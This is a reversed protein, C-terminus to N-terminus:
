ITLVEEELFTNLNSSIDKTIIWCAYLTINSRTWM